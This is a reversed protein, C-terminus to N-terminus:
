SAKNVAKYILFIALGAVVFQPFTFSRQLGFEALKLARHCAPCALNLISEAIAKEVSQKCGVCEYKLNRM